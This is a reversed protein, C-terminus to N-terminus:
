VLQPITQLRQGYKAFLNRFSQRTSHQKSCHLDSTRLHSSLTGRDFAVKIMHTDAIEATVTDPLTLGKIEPDTTRVIRFFDFEELTRNPVTFDECGAGLDTSFVDSNEALEAADPLRPPVLDCNCDESEPAQPITLIIKDPATGDELLSVETDTQANASWHPRAFPRIHTRSSFSLDGAADTTGSGIPGMAPQGTPKGFLQVYTRAAPKGTLVGNAASFVRVSLCRVPILEAPPLNTLAIQPAKSSIKILKLQNNADLLESLLSGFLTESTPGSVTVAAASDQRADDDVNIQFSGNAAVPM